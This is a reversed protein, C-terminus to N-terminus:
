DAAEAASRAVHTQAHEVAGQPDALFAARAEPTHFLYLRDDFLAWVNPNGGLAVGRALAMPDNGGYRPMYVQPDAAFAARNGENTFRWLAGAHRWEWAGQGEVVAGASFYAVPDVGHIAFGTHWDVAVPPWAAAEDQARAWGGRMVCAVSLLLAAVRVIQRGPLMIKVM